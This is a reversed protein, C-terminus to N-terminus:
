RKLYKGSVYGAKGKYSIRYWGNSTKGTVKVKTGRTVSGVKSYSTSNGSRVYLTSATVRYTGSASSVKIGSSKPKTSAASKVITKQATLYKGSVYGTKGKYSFRYWGNSTKGTVKISQNKKLSGLSKYSTGNGSRVNLSSATVKYTGSAKTVKITNTPKSAPKPAPKAKLFAGSVYAPKGKYTIQYWKKSTVGTVKVETNKKLSGVKPYNVGDGTRVNLPDTSTVIYTGSTKSVAIKSTNSTPKVAINNEKKPLNLANAVGTSIAESMDTLFVDEKLLEADSKNDIFLIELLISSMKSERVVHFNARKAGRYNKGYETLVKKIEKDIEEQVKIDESTPKTYIFSEYGAGGGANIHISLFLNAGWSNANDTRQKLTPYTDSGRTMKTNVVYNDVLNKNVKQAIKLTLDKERLGNGVAGSDSGGHGADIVVKKVSQAEAVNSFPVIFLGIAMVILYLKKKVKTRGKM